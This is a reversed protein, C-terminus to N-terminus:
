DYLDNFLGLGAAWDRGVSVGGSGGGWLGERLEDIEQHISSFIEPTMRRLWYDTASVLVDM